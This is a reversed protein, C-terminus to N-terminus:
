RRPKMFPILMPVECQYKKYVDGFELLLKREELITGIIVYLTLICNVVIDVMRYTGSWLFIILAFYMPHRMIGLLGSRKLEPPHAEATKRFNLMQRIGFFSLSDYDFFFAWFFILLSVATLVKRVISLTLGDVFLIQTDIQTSYNLLPILLVTSVAIYFVRFFAYYHKLQRSLFSTFGISILYSHLACYAAWLITIYLYKMDPYHEKRTM